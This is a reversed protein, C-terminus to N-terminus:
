TAVGQAPEHYLDLWAQVAKERGFKEAAVCRGRAAMRSRLEPKEALDGIIKAMAGFDDLPVVCGAGTDTLMERASCVATSVVPVGCAMAEIMARALGERESGILVLDCAKIWDAPNSQHGHFIVQTEIGLSDRADKCAQAYDSNAPDFDGIFHFKAHPVRRLVTPAVQEIVQLQRKLPVFAGVLLVDFDAGGGIMDTRNGSFESKRRDFEELDILSYIHQFGKDNAFGLRRIFRDVMECSLLVVRDCKAIGRQWERGYVASDTKIGRVTFILAAGGKWRYAARLARIDNAHVIDPSICKIARRVGMAFRWQALGRSVRGREFDAPLVSVIAGAKRWRDTFHSERNTVLYWAFRDSLAEFIQTASELGGNSRNASQVAVFLIRQTTM